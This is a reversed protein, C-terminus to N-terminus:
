LIIIAFILSYSTMGGVARAMNASTSITAPVLVLLCVLTFCVAVVAGERAFVLVLTRM